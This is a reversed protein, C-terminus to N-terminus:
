VNITLGKKINKMKQCIICMSFLYDDYNKRAYKAFYSTASLQLYKLGIRRKKRARMACEYSYCLPALLPFYFSKM